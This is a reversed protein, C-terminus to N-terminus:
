KKREVHGTCDSAEKKKESKDRGKWRELWGRKKRWKRWVGQRLDWCGCFGINGVRTKQLLKRKKTM